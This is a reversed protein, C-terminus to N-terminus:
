IYIKEEEVYKLIENKVFNIMDNKIDEKYTYVGDVCDFPYYLIESNQNQNRMKKLYDKSIRFVGISVDMILNNDISAFLEELMISYKEEFNEVYILPDICLRIKWGKEQLKKIAEVRKKFSATFKENKTTIDEPSLTFAIIYNDVAKLNLLKDINASKTRLEIKLNKKDEIFYYWKESFDCINEIALLDTDYSICLYLSGLENYLAEVENFVNEIDVFIVINGSPYVGQLYCYECDFVCNIISSTYYFNDNKFSECVKAGKYIMNEKNSALILKQSNKQLRFNQNNSSFIEKYNEIEIIKANPFKSLINITNQHPLIKKEVYIYSFRNSLLTKKTKKEDSTFNNKKLFEPKFNKIEDFIKKSENKNKVDYALYKKLFIIDSYKIKFYRVLNRFEAKMTDTFKLKKELNEILLIDEKSFLSEYNINQISDLFEKIEMYSDNFFNEDNFNAVLRKDINDDLIDSIIKFVFIKDKKFFTSAAQYFGFAEMDIYDIDKEKKEVISDFTMLEIEKFNHKYITELYFSNKSYASNLKICSVVDKIKAENDSSAAFGINFIFDNENLENNTILYTTAISSKIKGTGSIILKINENSFVQFKTYSNNKKLQFLNILPKAEVFLATVIYLM